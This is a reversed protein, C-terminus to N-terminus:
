IVAGYNKGRYSVVCCLTRGVSAVLPPVKGRFRDGPMGTSTEKSGKSGTIRSDEVRRFHRVGIGPVVAQGRFTPRENLADSGERSFKEGPFTRKKYILFLHIPV